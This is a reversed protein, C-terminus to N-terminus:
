VPSGLLDIQEQSARLISFATNVAVLLLLALGCTIIATRYQRRADVIYQRRRFKKRHPPSTAPKAVPAGTTPDISITADNM